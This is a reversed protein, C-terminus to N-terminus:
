RVFKIKVMKRGNPAYSVDLCYAYIYIFIVEKFMYNFALLNMTFFKLGYKFSIIETQKIKIRANENILDGCLIELLIKTPM